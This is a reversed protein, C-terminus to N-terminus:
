ATVIVKGSSPYGVTVKEVVPEEGYYLIRTNAMDIELEYEGPDTFGDHDSDVFDCEKFYVEISYGGPMGSSITYASGPAGHGTM